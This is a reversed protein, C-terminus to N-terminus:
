TPSGRWNDDGYPFLHRPFLAEGAKSFPGFNFLRISGRSGGRSRRCIWRRGQNIPNVLLAKLVSKPPLNTKLNLIPKQDNGIVNLDLTIDSASANADPLRVPPPTESVTPANKVDVIAGISNRLDCSFIYGQTFEVMGCSKEGEWATAQKQGEDTLSVSLGERWEQCGSKEIADEHGFISLHADVAGKLGYGERNDFAVSLPCVLAARKTYLPLIFNM